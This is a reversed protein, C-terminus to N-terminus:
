RMPEKTQAPSRDLEHPQEVRSKFTELFRAADVGDVARHDASLTVIMTRRSVPADDRLVWREQPRATALIAVQPPAIIATFASVAFMGLNTLTFTAESLEAPRLRNSRAREVLDRLADNLAPLDLEEAGILAPAVLGDNLAVAVGLNIAEAQVLGNETWVSNLRPHDRLADICAAALGATVSIQEPRNENLQEIQALLADVDVDAQVYFHPAGRKSESMRRAIAARMRTQEVAQGQVM